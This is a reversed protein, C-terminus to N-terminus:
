QSTYAFRLVYEGPTLQPIDYCSAFSYLHAQCDILNVPLNTVNGSCADLCRGSVGRSACCQTRDIGDVISFFL